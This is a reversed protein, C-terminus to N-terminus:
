AYEIFFVTASVTRKAIAITKSRNARVAYGFDILLPRGDDQILVNRLNIDRHM